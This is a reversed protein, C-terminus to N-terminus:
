FLKSHKIPRGANYEDKLKLVQDIDIKLFGGLDLLRILVDVFEEEFSTIEPIKKCPGPSRLAEVAEGLESGILALKQCIFAARIVDRHKVSDALAEEMDDWFGKDRARQHLEKALETIM